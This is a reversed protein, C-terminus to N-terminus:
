FPMAEVDERWRAAEHGRLLNEAIDELTPIDEPAVVNLRNETPTAWRLNAKRRNDLTQGNIHDVHHLACFAVPRPDFQMMLARSMYVTRRAAGENRKAYRKDPANRHWGHNWKWQALWPEDEADILCFLPNAEGLRFWRWPTGSLDPLPM